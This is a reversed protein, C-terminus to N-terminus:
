RGRTPDDSNRGLLLDDQEQQERIGEPSRLYERYQKIIAMMKGEDDMVRAMFQIREQPKMENREIYWAFAHERTEELSGTM